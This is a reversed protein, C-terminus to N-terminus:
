LPVKRVIDKIDGSAGSLKMVGSMILLAGLLVEGVRIWTTGQSLRGFFDGITALGPISNAVYSEGAKLATGPNLINANKGGPQAQEKLAAAYDAIIANVFWSTLLNVSNPKKEAEAESGYGHFGFTVAEKEQSGAIDVAKGSNYGKFAFWTM